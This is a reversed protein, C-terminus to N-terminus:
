YRDSWLARNKKVTLWGLPLEGWYLGMRKAGSAGVEVSQGNILRHLLEPETAVLDRGDDPPPLLIRARPAPVVGQPATRGLTFGRWRFSPPLLELAEAPRFVARGAEAAVEGPPLSEWAIGGGRLEPAIRPAGGAPRAKPGRRGAGVKRLCALFFSQCQSEPGNVRLSGEAEGSRPEEWVFGPLPEIRGPELGCERVAWAAQDENEARNTTCTSYIIRGGPALLDCARALLRRQLRILPELREDRWMDLVRPNKEATGWGSCPPDLLIWSFTEAPLPLHEGPYGCTVVNALNQAQMNWRLTALRRRGPENAVVLSGPGGMGAALGAKGGPSACLDLLPEGPEPEVQLAPLMSAKDQIYVLGFVAAVSQGLPKPERVLQRAWRSFALGEFEYGESRLLAEAM